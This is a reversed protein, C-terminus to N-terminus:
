VPTISTCDDIRFCLKQTHEPRIQTSFRPRLVGHLTTTEVVLDRRTGVQVTLRRSLRGYRVHTPRSPIVM